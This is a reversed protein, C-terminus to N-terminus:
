TVIEARPVSQSLIKKRQSWYAFGFIGGFVTIFVAFMIAIMGFLLIGGGGPAPRVHDILQRSTDPNSKDYLVPITQGIALRRYPEAGITDDGFFTRGDATTLRYQVHEIDEHRGAEVYLKTVEASGEVGRKALASDAALIPTMVLAVTVLVGLMSPVIIGLYTLQLRRLRPEVPPPVYPSPRGAVGVPHPSNAGWAAIAANLLAELEGTKFGFTDLIVFGDFTDPPEGVRVLKVGSLRTRGADTTVRRAQAVDGWAVQNM